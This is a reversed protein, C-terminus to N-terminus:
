KGKYNRIERNQSAREVGEKLSNNIKRALYLSYWDQNASGTGGEKIRGPVLDQAILKYEMRNGITLQNNRPKPIATKTVRPARAVKPRTGSKKTGNIDTKGPLVVWNDEFEGSFNPGDVKLDEVVQTASEILIEDTVKNLWDKFANIM